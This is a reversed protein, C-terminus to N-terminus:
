HLKKGEMSDFMLRFFHSFFSAGPVLRSILIEPGPSTNSYNLLLIAKQDIDVRTIKCSCVLIEGVVLPLNAGQERKNQAKGLFTIQM